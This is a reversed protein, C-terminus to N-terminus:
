LIPELHSLALGALDLLGQEVLAVSASAGLARGVGHLLVSGLRVDDCGESLGLLLEVREM